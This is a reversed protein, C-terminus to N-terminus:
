LAGDPTRDLIAVALRNAQGRLTSLKAMHLFKEVDVGVVISNERDNRCLWRRLM